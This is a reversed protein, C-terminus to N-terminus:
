PRKSPRSVEDKTKKSLIGYVLQSVPDLRREDRQRGFTALLRSRIRELVPPDELILSFQM